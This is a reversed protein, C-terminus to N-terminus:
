GTKKRLPVVKEKMVDLPTAKDWMSHFQHRFADALAASQIVM